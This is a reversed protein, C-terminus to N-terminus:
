NFKLKAAKVLAINAAVERKVLADFEASTLKLPEIGQPKFKDQVAPTALAKQTEAYLREVIARPTKSPVFLGLWFNYDSDKLGAEVTTPVNPLAASRATTSVALPVLKGDRILPMASSIGMCTFDVRGAMVETLAEPGGKFPVHVADYGGALRLREAAWHTASGVGASAYTFKGSKKAAAVLDQVTKFGRGPHVVTVNPVTGFPIVASFDRVPDYSLNPYAAPAASHASAQILLTHGDPEAKVVSATGISGGAGGRNEIVITQGLQRSLPDMVIRGVIDLTSGAAFPVMARIQRTPYKQAAAIHPLTPAALAAASMTLFTRRTTM